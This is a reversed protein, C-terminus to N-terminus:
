DCKLKTKSKLAFSACVSCKQCNEKGRLVPMENKGKGGMKDGEKVKVEERM